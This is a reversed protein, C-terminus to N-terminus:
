QWNSINDRLKFTRGLAGTNWSITVSIAAENSGIPTIQVSRTFITANGSTYQYFHSASDYKIAPCSAGCATITKNKSDIYCLQGICSTLGTLWGADGPSNYPTNLGNLGNADRVNRVYEVAEQAIFSATVQDRAINAAYLSKAAITLPGALAGLLVTIAVLTEILSFGSKNNSFFSSSYTM